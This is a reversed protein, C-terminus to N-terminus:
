YNVSALCPRYAGFGTCMNYLRRLYGLPFRSGIGKKVCRYAGGYMAFFFVCVWVCEKEPMNKPPFM